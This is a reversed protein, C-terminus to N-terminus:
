ILSKIEEIIKNKSDINFLSLEEWSKLWTLQRKALQRTAYLARNFFEDANYENNIFGIAQKYNVAKRIPHNEPIQYKQLIHHAEDILGASIITNLRDEIRSHLLSRDEEFIGYQYINFDDQINKKPNSEILSSFSSESIEIVELARIIRQEDNSQIRNAYIPDEKKLMSYLKKVGEREKISELQKRLEDNREPLENLGTLLSKFYMMSGGVFLPVKNKIHIKNVLEMAANCFDVVTFILNPEIVDILHHPHKILLEHNPKASGINCDKYVMVSDVSIIEVPLSQHIEIALDTKGSATPGLL